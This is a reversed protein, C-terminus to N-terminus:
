FTFQFGTALHLGSNGLGGPLNVYRVEAFMNQTIDVGAFAQYRFGDAYGAGAGVYMAVPDPGFPLFKLSLFGALTQEEKLYTTETVIRLNDQTGIKSEVRVGMSIESDEGLTSLVMGVKMKPAAREEVLMNRSALFLDIRDQSAVELASVPSSSFLLVTFLITVALAATHSSKFRMNM